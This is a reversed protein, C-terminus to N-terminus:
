AHTTYTLSQLQSHVGLLRTNCHSRVFYKSDLYMELSMLSVCNPLGVHVSSSFSLKWKAEKLVGMGVAIKFVSIIIRTIVIALHSSLGSDHNQDPEM